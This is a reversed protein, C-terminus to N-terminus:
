GQCWAQSWAALNALVGPVVGPEGEWLSVLDAQARGPDEHARLLTLLQWSVAYATRRADPDAGAFAADPPPTLGSPGCAARAAQRSWDATAADLPLAVLEATGESVWDAGDAVPRGATAVHLAEHALLMAKQADSLGATATPNVVIHVAASPPTWGGVSVPAASASSSASGSDFAPPAPPAPPAAPPLGTDETWTLAGTQAFGAADTGLVAQFAAATAPVEVVLGVPTPGTLGSLGTADVADLGQRALPAWVAAADGPGVLVVARGDDQRTLTQVAWLPAPEGAVARLDDLACGAAGCAVGGVLQWASRPDATGTTWGVRLQDTAPGPAFRVSGLLGLNAWLIDRRGTPAAATPAAGTATASSPTWFLADFGARDRAAVVQTLRAALSAQDAPLDPAPTRPAGGGPACAAVAGALLAAV